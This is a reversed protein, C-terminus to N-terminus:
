LESGWPNPLKCGKDNDDRKRSRELACRSSAEQKGTIERAGHYSHGQPEHDTHAPIHTTAVDRSDGNRSM